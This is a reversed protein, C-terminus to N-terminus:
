SPWNHYRFNDIPEDPRNNARFTASVRGHIGKVRSVAHEPRMEKDADILGPARLLVVDGPILPVTTMHHGDSRINLCAKGILNFIPILGPHRELDKHWSLGGEVTRYRQVAVEDIQWDKLSPFSDSLPEVIESVVFNGLARIAPLQNLAEQSGHSLKHAFVEFAQDVVVGRANTFSNYQPHWPLPSDKIENYLSSLLESPMGTEILFYGPGDPGLDEAIENTFSGITTM